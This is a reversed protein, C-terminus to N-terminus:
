EGGKDKGSTLPIKVKLVMSQPIALLNSPTRVYIYLSDTSELIGIAQVINGSETYIVKVEKGLFEELKM